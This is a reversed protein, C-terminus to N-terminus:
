VQIIKLKCFKSINVKIYYAVRKSMAKYEIVNAAIKKNIIFGVGRINDEENQLAGRYYLTNGSHLQICKEERRKIESIGIIDWKTKGLEEELEFLKDDKHM